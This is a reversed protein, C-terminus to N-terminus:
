RGAASATEAARSYAVAVQAPQHGPLCEFCLGAVAATGRLPILATRSAQLPMPSAKSAFAIFHDAQLSFSIPLVAVSGCTGMKMWIGPMEMRHWILGNDDRCKARETAQDRRWYSATAQDASVCLKALKREASVGGALQM